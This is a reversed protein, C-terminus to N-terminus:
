RVEGRKAGTLHLYYQASVQIGFSMLLLILGLAFLVSQQFGDSEAFNNALTAAITTGCSFIGHPLEMMNGIGFLVAMTEGLARGM